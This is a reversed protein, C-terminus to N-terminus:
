KRNHKKLKQWLLEVDEILMKNKAALEENARFLEQVLVWNSQIETHLNKNLKMYEELKLAQDVNKKGLEQGHDVHMKIKKWNLQIDQKLQTNQHTYKKLKTWNLKIDSVHSQIQRKFEDIDANKKRMANVIESIDQRLQHNIDKQEGLKSTMDRLLQQKEEKCKELEKAANAKCGKRVVWECPSTCKTKTNRSCGPQPMQVQCPSFIRQCQWTMTNRTSSTRVHM